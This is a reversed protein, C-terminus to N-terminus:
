KCYETGYCSCFYSCQAERCECPVTEAIVRAITDAVPSNLMSQWYALKADYDTLHEVIYKAEKCNWEKYQEETPLLEKPIPELSDMGHKNYWWEWVRAGRTYPNEDKNKAIFQNALIQTRAKLNDTM